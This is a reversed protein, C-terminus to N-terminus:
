QKAWSKDAEAKAAAKLVFRHSGATVALTKLAPLLKKTALSASSTLAGLPKTYVILKEALTPSMALGPAVLPKATAYVLKAVPQAVGTAPTQASPVPDAPVLSTTNEVDVAAQELVVAVLQPKTFPAM